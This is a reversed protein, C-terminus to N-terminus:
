RVFGTGSLASQANDDQVNPAILAECAAVDKIRRAAYREAFSDRFIQGRSRPVTTNSDM